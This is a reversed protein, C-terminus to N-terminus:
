NNLVGYFIAENARIKDLESCYSNYYNIQGDDSIDQIMNYVRQRESYMRTQAVAFSLNKCNAKVWERAAEAGEQKQIDSESREMQASDTEINRSVDYLLGVVQSGAFLMIAGILYPIMSKKYDAKQEVSGIMYRIGLLTIAGLSVISGIIRITGVVQGIVSATTDDINVTANYKNPDKIIEDAFCRSQAFVLIFALIILVFKIILKIKKNM